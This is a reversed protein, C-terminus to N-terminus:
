FSNAGHFFVDLLVPLAEEFLQKREQADWGDAGLGFVLCIHIEAGLGEGVQQEFRAGVFGADALGGAMRDDEALLDDVRLGTGHQDVAVVVDLWHLRQVFPVVIGEVRLDVVPGDPAAPGVVVLALQEHVDLGKLVQHAAALEGM